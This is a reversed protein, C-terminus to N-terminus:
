KQVREGTEMYVVREAINCAHDGIRELYRAVFQYCMGMTIKHSDEMMYTLVERIVSAYLEDVQEEINFVLETKSLDRNVFSDVAFDVMQCALESLRPITVLAKFHSLNEQVARETIDAIDKAYRVIREFDTTVKLSTAVFRLDRAVPTQLAIIRIIHKEARQLLKYTNVDLDRVRNVTSLDMSVFSEAALRIAEKAMNGMETMMSGIENLEQEYVKRPTM